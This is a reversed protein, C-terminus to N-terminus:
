TRFTSRSVFEFKHIYATFGIVIYYHLLKEKSLIMNDHLKLYM